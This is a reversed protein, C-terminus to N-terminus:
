VAEENLWRQICEECTSLMCCKDEACSYEKGTLAEIVCRCMGSSFAVQLCRLMDYENRQLIYKDRNKV